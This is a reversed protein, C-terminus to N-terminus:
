VFFDPLLESNPDIAYSSFDEVGEEQLVTEDIFFQGTCESSFRTLVAHAADAM